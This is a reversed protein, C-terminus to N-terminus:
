KESSCTRDPKREYQQDDVDIRKSAGSGRGTTEQELLQWKERGRRGRDDDLRLRALDRAQLLHREGSSGRGIAGTTSHSGITSASV